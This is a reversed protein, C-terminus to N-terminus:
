GANARVVFAELESNFRESEEFFPAHGSDRYFSTEAAPMLTKLWRSLEPKIVRDQLGHTILTPLALSRWMGQVAEADSTARGFWRRVELPVSANYVLMM